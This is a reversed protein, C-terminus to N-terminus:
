GMYAGIIQCAAGAVILALGLYGLARYRADKALEDPDAEGAVVNDYGETSVRFPMGYRFLMLVGALGLVIGSINWAAITM